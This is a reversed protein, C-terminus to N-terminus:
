SAAVALSRRSHRQRPVPARLPDAHRQDRHAPGVLRPPLPEFPRFRDADTLVSDNGYNMITFKSHTGFV